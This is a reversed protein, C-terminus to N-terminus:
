NDPTSRTLSIVAGKVGMSLITSNDGAQRHHIRCQFEGYKQAEYDADLGSPM